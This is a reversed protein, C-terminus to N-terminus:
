LPQRPSAQQWFFQSAPLTAGFSDVSLLLGASPLAPSSSAAVSKASPPFATEHSHTSTGGASRYVSFVGTQVACPLSKTMRNSVFDTLSTSPGYALKSSVVEIWHM